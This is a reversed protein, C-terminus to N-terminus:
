SFEDFQSFSFDMLPQDENLGDKEFMDEFEDEENSEFANDFHEEQGEQEQEHQDTNQDPRDRDVNRIQILPLINKQM